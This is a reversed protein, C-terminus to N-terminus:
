QKLTLSYLKNFTNETIINKQKVFLYIMLVLIGISKLYIDLVLILYIFSYSINKSIKESVIESLIRYGDLPYIPLLSFFILMLNYKVILDSYILKFYSFIIVILINAVIGSLFVIIRHRKSLKNTDINCIGGFMTIELKVKRNGFIFSIFIHFLEHILISLSIIIVEIYKSIFLMLVVFFLYSYTFKIKKM